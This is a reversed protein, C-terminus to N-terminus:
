LSLHAMTVLRSRMWSLMKSVSSVAYLCTIEGMMCAMGPMLPAQPKWGVQESYAAIAKRSCPM